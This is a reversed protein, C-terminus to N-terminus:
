KVASVIGPYPRRSELPQGVLHHPVPINQGPLRQGLAEKQIIDPNRKHTRPANKAEFCAM